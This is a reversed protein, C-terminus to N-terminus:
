KRAIRPTVVRPDQVNIYRVSCKGVPKHPRQIDNLSQEVSSAELSKRKTSNNVEISKKLPPFSM